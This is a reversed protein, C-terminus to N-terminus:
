CKTSHHVYIIGLRALQLLSTNLPIIEGICATFTATNDGFETYDNICSLIEVLNVFSLILLHRFLNNDPWITCLRM